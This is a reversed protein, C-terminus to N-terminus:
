PRRIANQHKTAAVSLTLFFFSCTSHGVDDHGIKKEVTGIAIVKCESTIADFLYNFELKMLTTCFFIFM